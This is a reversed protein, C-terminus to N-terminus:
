SFILIITPFGRRIVVHGKKSSLRVLVWVKTVYSPVCYYPRRKLIDKSLRGGGFFFIICIHSGGFRCSNGFNLPVMSSPGSCWIFPNEM